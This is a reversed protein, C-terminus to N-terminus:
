VCSVAFGNGNNLKDFINKYLTATDRASGSAITNGHARLFTIADAILQNITIPNGDIGAVCVGGGMANYAVNLMTGALQASLMYSMNTATANLLWSAFNGDATTCSGTTPVTYFGVGNASRLFGNSPNGGNLLYRWALDHACLVAKGNKNSWFGITLGGTVPGCVTVSAGDSNDGATADSSVTATNDYETCTNAVVPVSRTYTLTFTQTGGDYAEAFSTLQNNVDTTWSGNVGAVGLTTTTNTATWTDSVTTTNHTVTPDVTSFDFPVPDNSASGNATNFLTKDWTATATNTGAAPSPASTYSCSYPVVLSDSALVTENLGLNTDTVSCTGGNSVADTITVGTVDFTNPNTVTINGAVQWGSDTPGSWTAKVRYNVNASSASSNIATASTTQDKVVNWDYDRTFSATATKTVSLDDATFTGGDCGHSITLIWSGNGTSDVAFTVFASGTSSDDAKDAAAITGPDIYPTVIQWVGGTFYASGYTTGDVTLTPTGSVGGGDTSFIWLMYDGATAGNQFGGAGPDAHICQQNVPAGQGTWYLTTSDQSVPGPSVDAMAAAVGFAALAVVVVAILGAFARLGFRRKM